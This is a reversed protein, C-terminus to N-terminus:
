DDFGDAFLRDNVFGGDYQLNQARIDRMQNDNTPSDSWVFAAYGLESTAGGLWIVKGINTKLQAPENWLLDGGADLRVASIANNAASSNGAVWAALFGDPATLAVPQSLANIGDTAETMPVIVQGTDGFARAGSSDIRQAYLGNFVMGGPTTMSDIWTVNIDGTSADFVAAPNTHRNTTDTTVLLGDNGLIRTGSADLHQVRTVPASGVIDYYAFIAGGANDSIIKPFYGAQLNGADSIRIGDNGWLVAGDASALKQARLIRTSGTQNSWAVIADGDLGAKVDAIFKFGTAPGPLTIGTPGWVAMGDADLKQARGQASGNMWVAVVGGDSTATAYSVLVDETPTTVTVGTPGWLPIGTEDFKYVVVSEDSTAACCQFALIANGAVDVSFGYDTTSSYNRDAVLIGNHSWMENGDGDLRQLRVDFGDDTDDLWSVYFGGDARPLIKPQTEQGDRDAIILNDSPNGSWRIGTDSQMANAGGVALVAFVPMAIFRSRLNQSSM